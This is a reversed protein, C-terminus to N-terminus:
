SPGASLGFAALLLQGLASGGDSLIGALVAALARAGAAPLGDVIVRRLTALIGSAEDRKKEDLPLNPLEHEIQNLVQNVASQNIALNATQTSNDGGIQVTSYNAHITVVNAPRPPARDLNDAEDRGKPTLSIRTNLGNTKAIHENIFFLDLSRYEDPTTGLHAQLEDIAVEGKIQAAGNERIYRLAKDRLDRLRKPEIRESM